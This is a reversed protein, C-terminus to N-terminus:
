SLASTPLMGYWGTGLYIKPFNALNSNLARNDKFDFAKSTSITNNFIVFDLMQFVLRDLYPKGQCM